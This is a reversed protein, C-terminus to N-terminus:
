EYISVTTGLCAFCTVALGANFQAATDVYFSTAHACSLGLGIFLALALLARISSGRNM